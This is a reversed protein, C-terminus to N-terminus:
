EDIFIDAGGIGAEGPRGHPFRPAGWHLVQEDTNGPCEYALDPADIKRLLDCLSRNVCGEESKVPYHGREDYYVEKVEWGLAKVAEFFKQAELPRSVEMIRDPRGGGNPIYRHLNLIPGKLEKTQPLGYIEAMCPQFRSADFCAHRSSVLHLMSRTLQEGQPWRYEHILCKELGDFPYQEDPFRYQPLTLTLNTLSTVKGLLRVTMDDAEADTSTWREAEPDEHGLSPFSGKWMVPGFGFARMHENFVDYSDGDEPPASRQQPTYILPSSSFGPHCVTMDKVKWRNRVGLRVLFHFLMIWGCDGTFRFPQSYFVDIAEAYFQKSVALNLLRERIKRWESAFWTIGECPETPDYADVGRYGVREHACDACSAFGM